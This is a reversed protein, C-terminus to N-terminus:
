KNSVLPTRTYMQCLVVSIGMFQCVIMLAIEVVIDFWVNFSFDFSVLLDQTM